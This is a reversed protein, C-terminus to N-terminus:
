NVLDVSNVVQEAPESLSELRDDRVDCLKGRPSNEGNPPLTTNGSRIPVPSIRTPPSAPTWNYSCQAHVVTKEDLLVRFTMEFNGYWAASHPLNIQINGRVNSYSDNLLFEVIQPHERALAAVLPSVYYGSSANADQPYKIVVYDVLNQSGCDVTDYLIGSFREIGIRWSHTTSYQSVTNM